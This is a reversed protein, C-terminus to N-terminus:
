SRARPCCRAPPGRCRRPPPPACTDALMELARLVGPPTEKVARKVDKPRVRLRELEVGDFRATLRRVAADGGSRVIVASVTASVTRESRGLSWSRSRTRPETASMTSIHSATAIGGHPPQGRAEVADLQLAQPHAGLVHLPRDLLRRRSHQPRQLHQGLVQAGGGGLRQRPGGALHQGLALDHARPWHRDVPDADIGGAPTGGVRGAGHHRHHRRLHGAYALDRDARRGAGVAQGGVRHQGSCGARCRPSRRSRRRGPPPPAPARCRSSGAPPRARRDRFRTRRPPSARATRRPRCRTAPRDWRASPAQRRWREPRPPRRPGAPAPRARPRRRLRHQHRHIRGHEFGHGPVEALSLPHRQM